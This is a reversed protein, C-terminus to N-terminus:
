LLCCGYPDTGMGVIKNQDSGNIFFGRFSGTGATASGRSTLPDKSASLMIGACNMDHTLVFRYTCGVISATPTPLSCTFPTSGPCGGTLSLAITKGCDNTTLTINQSANIFGVYDNGVSGTSGYTVTGYSSSVTTDSGSITTTGSSSSITTSSGSITTTGSSGSIIIHGM